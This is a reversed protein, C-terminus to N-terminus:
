VNFQGGYLLSSCNNRHKAFRVNEGVTV